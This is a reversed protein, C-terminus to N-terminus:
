LIVLALTSLVGQTGPGHAEMEETKMVARHSIDIMLEVKCILLSLNLSTLYSARQRM